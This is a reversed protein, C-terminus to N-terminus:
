NLKRRESGYAACFYQKIESKAFKESSVARIETKKAVKANMPEGRNAPSM